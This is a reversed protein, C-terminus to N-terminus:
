HSADYVGENFIRWEAARRLELGRMSVGRATIYHNTFDKMTAQGTRNLDSVPPTIANAGANFRLSVLADFQNQTVPVDLDAAVHSAMREVDSKFLAEAEAKTIPAANKTTKHGYGITWDGGKVKGKSADYVTLSLKEYGKIFDQGAQSVQQQNQQAQSSSQDNQLQQQYEAVAGDVISSWGIISFVGPWHGDPDVRSLPNNNVYGYLNLSQPNNLSAYPVAEATNSWDPSMFRGMSSSYHRAGFYDLKSEPDREKGTFLHRTAETGSCDPGDGFPLTLCNLEPKGAASVQLRKTGLPDTVNFHLPQAVTQGDITTPQNDYTALLQMGIWVNTHQWNDSGDLQTLQEGNEGVIYKEDPQFDGPGTPCSPTSPNGLPHGKAIRNGEADYLYQTVLMSQTAYNYAAVACIRGEGDYILNNSGDFTMNGADYKIMETLQNKSMQNRNNAYEAWATPVNVNGTVSQHLRNGFSDYDWTISAGSYPGDSAVGTHLRNVGDYSMTWSGTVTDSYKLLNGNSAYGSNGSGDKASFNYIKTQPNSVESGTVLVTWTTTFAAYQDQATSISATITYSGVPLVATYGSEDWYSYCYTYYNVNGDASCYAGSSKVTDYTSGTPVGNVTWQINGNPQVTGGPCIYSNDPGCPTGAYNPAGM